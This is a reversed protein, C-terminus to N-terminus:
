PRWENAAVSAATDSKSRASKHAQDARPGAGGLHRRVSSRLGLVVGIPLIGFDADRPLRWSALAVFVM